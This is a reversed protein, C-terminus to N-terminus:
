PLLREPIPDFPELSPREMDLRQGTDEIEVMCSGPPAHNESEIADVTRQLPAVQLGAARHRWGACREVVRDFEDHLHVAFLGVHPKRTVDIERSPSYARGSSRSRSSALCNDTLDAALENLRRSRPAEAERKNQDLPLPRPPRSSRAALGIRCNRRRAKSDPITMRFCM